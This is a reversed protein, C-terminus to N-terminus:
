KKMKLTVSDAVPLGEVPAVPTWVEVEEEMEIKVWRAETLAVEVTLEGDAPAPRGTESSWFNFLPVETTAGPDLPFAFLETDYVPLQHGDIAVSFALLSATREGGNKLKVSLKCLTDVAPDAPVVTVEEISLLPAAPEEAEQAPAAGAVTMSLALWASALATSESPRPRM